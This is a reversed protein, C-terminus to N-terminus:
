FKKGNVQWKQIVVGGSGVTDAHILKATNSVHYTM